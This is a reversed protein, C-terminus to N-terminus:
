KNLITIVELCPNRVVTFQQWAHVLHDNSLDLHLWGIFRLGNKM